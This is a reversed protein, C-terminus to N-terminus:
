FFELMGYEFLFTNEFFMELLKENNENAVGLKSVLKCYAGDFSVFAM